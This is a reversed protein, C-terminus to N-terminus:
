ETAGSRTRTAPEVARARSLFDSVAAIDDHDLRSLLRIHSRSFNPRRGDIADYIQRRLYEYHQGGIVPVGRGDEGQGGPGHCSACQRRYVDAGRGLKEGDGAAASAKPELSSVYAAVDAMAQPSELHHQDTFHEMRVDFREGHRFDVLQKLLVAVHQGGIRPILGDPTGGGDPGHCAACSSFYGAGRTLDPKARQADQLERISAATGLALVPVAV